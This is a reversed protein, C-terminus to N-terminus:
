KDNKATNRSLLRKEKNIEANSILVFYAGTIFIVSCYISILCIIGAFGIHMLGHNFTFILGMFVALMILAPLGINMKSSKISDVFIESLDKKDAHITNKKALSISSYYTFLVVAIVSSAFLLMLSSPSVMTRTVAYLGLSILMSSLYAIELALGYFVNRRILGYLFIAIFIIGLPILFMILQHSAYTSSMKEVSLLTSKEDINFKTILDQKISEAHEESNSEYRVCLTPTFSKDGEMSYEETTYGYKSLIEDIGELYENKKEIDLYDINIEYYGGFQYSKNFGFFAVLIVGLVLITATFLLSFSLLKKPSKFLKNM